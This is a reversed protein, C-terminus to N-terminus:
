SKLVSRYCLVLGSGLLDLLLFSIPQKGEITKIGLFFVLVVFFTEAGLLRMWGRVIGYDGVLM